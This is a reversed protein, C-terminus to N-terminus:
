EVKIKIPLFLSDEIKQRVECSVYCDSKLCDNLLSNADYYNINIKSIQRKIRKQLM